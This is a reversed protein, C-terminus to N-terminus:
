EGGGALGGDAADVSQSAAAQPIGQARRFLECFVPRRIDGIRGNEVVADLTFQVDHVGHRM